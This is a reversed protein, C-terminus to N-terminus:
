APGRLYRPLVKRAMANVFVWTLATAIAVCIGLVLFHSGIGTLRAFQGITSTQTAVQSAFAAFLGFYSWSMCHYHLLISKRWIAIMGPILTSLSMVAFVHFMNIGGDIDYMTLATCNTVLMAAVYAYGAQKHFRTGKRRWFVIPGLVLALAALTVHAQGVFRDTWFGALFEIM